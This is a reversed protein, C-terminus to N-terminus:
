FTPLAEGSKILLMLLGFLLIPGLPLLLAAAARATSFRNMMKFAMGLLMLSWAFCLADGFWLVLSLVPYSTMWTREPMFLSAGFLALRPIGFLVLALIGPVGAYALAMRAQKRTAAGGLIESSWQAPIAAAYLYAIGAAAGVLVITALLTMVGAGRLPANIVALVSAWYIGGVASFTHAYSMIPHEIAAALTAAPERIMGAFVHAYGPHAVPANEEAIHEADHLSLFEDM